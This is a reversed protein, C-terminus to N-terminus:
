TIVIYFFLICFLVASRNNKSVPMLPLRGMPCGYYWPSALVKEFSKKVTGINSENLNEATEGYTDQIKRNAGRLLLDKATRLNTNIVAQHLATRGDSSQADLDAGLSM